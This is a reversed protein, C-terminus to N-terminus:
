LGYQKFLASTISEGPNGHGNEGSAAQRDDEEHEENALIPEPEPVSPQYSFLPPFGYELSRDPELKPKKYPTKDFQSEAEERARMAGKLSSRKSRTLSSKLKRVSGTGRIDEATDDEEIQQDQQDIESDAWNKMHLFTKTNSRIDTFEGRVSARLNRVDDVLQQVSRNPYRDIVYAFMVFEAPAFTTANRARTPDEFFVNSNAEIVASFKAFVQHANTKMVNTIDEKLFKDIETASSKISDPHKSINLLAIAVIQFPRSRGTEMVENLTVYEELLQHVFHATMTAYAQFKEATTLVMGLQVRAFMEQEQAETINAYEVGVLEIDNFSEQQEDTLHPRRPFDRDLEFYTKSGDAPNLRPIENKVFKVISTLRQKGDVCVRIQGRKEDYKTTFLIPPVYYNQLLSDILHSMKRESWVVDRQYEPNLDIKKRDILDVLKWIQWTTAHPKSLSSQVANQQKKPASM